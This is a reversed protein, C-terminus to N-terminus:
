SDFRDKIRKLADETMKKATEKMLAEDSSRLHYYVWDFVLPSRCRHDYIEDQLARSKETLQEPMEQQALAARLLREAHDKLTDLLAAAIKHKRYQRLGLIFLPVLPMIVALLFKGITLERVLGLLITFISMGVLVVLVGSMYRRHLASDWWFNARQCVIRALHVPLEGVEVPYWNRLESYKADVKKIKSAYKSITEKNPYSGAKIINWNLQLVDCDFLELIKAGNEMLTRQYPTFFFFDSFTVLVAWYAAYVDLRPVLFVLLSWVIVLSFVIVMQITLLTKANSYLQRQAALCDLSEEDSQREPITNM